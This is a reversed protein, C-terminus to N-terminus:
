SHSLDCFSTIAFLHHIRGLAGVTWFACLGGANNLTYLIALAVNRSTHKDGAGRALEELFQLRTEATLSHGYLDFRAEHPARKKEQL